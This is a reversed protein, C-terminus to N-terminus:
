NTAKAVTIKFKSKIHVVLRYLACGIFLGLSYFIVNNIDLTVGIKNASFAYLFETFIITGAAYIVFYRVKKLESLILFVKILFGLGLFFIIKLAIRQWFSQITIGIDKFPILNIGYWKESFGWDLYKLNGGTRIFDYFVIMALVIVTGAAMILWARMKENM